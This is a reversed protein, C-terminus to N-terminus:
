VQENVEWNQIIKKNEVHYTATVYQTESDYTPMESEVLELWGEATALEPNTEFYKPLNSIAEGSNLFGNIPLFRIQKENIFKALM